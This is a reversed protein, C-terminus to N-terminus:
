EQSAPCYWDINWIQGPLEELEAIKLECKEGISVFYGQLRGIITHDSVQLVIDAAALM